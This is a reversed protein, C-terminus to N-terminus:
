RCSTATESDWTDTTVVSIAMTGADYVGTIVGRTVLRGSPPIARELTVRQRLHLAGLPDGMLRQNLAVVIPFTPVVAFTPLM